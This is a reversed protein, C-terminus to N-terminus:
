PKKGVLRALRLIKSSIRLRSKDAAGVNIEFRVHDGERYFNVLVGRDAFGTTDGITLIPRGSTQALIKDLRKDESHGIFLLHCASVRSLDSIHTLTIPRGQIKRERAMKVLYEGFPDDGVLCIAFPTADAPFAGDPWDVLRSIRDIYEAELLPEPAVDAGLAASAAGWLMWTTLGLAIFARRCRAGRGM